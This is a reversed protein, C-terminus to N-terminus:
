ETLSRSVADLKGTTPGSTTSLLARIDKRLEAGTRRAFLLGLVAGGALGVTVFAAIDIAREAKTKKRELGLKRLLADATHSQSVFGLTSQM